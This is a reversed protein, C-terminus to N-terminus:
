PIAFRNTALGTKGLAKQLTNNGMQFGSGDALAVNGVNKHIRSGWAVVRANAVQVLRSKVAGGVLLNRDACLISSPITESADVGSLLECKHGDVACFDTTRTRGSDNPCVLVKPNGKRKFM